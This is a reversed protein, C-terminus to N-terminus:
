GKKSQSSTRYCVWNNTNVEDAGSQVDGPVTSDQRSWFWVKVEDSTREM